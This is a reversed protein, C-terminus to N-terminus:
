CNREHQASESDKRAAEMSQAVKLAKGITLEDESQLRWGLEAVYECM